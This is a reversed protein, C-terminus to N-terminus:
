PDFDGTTPRSPAAKAKAPPAYSNREYTAKVAAASPAKGYKATSRAIIGAKAQALTAKAKTNPTAM